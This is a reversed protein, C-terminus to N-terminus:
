WPKKYRWMKIEGINPIYIRRTVAGALLVKKGISSLVGGPKLISILSIPNVGIDRAIAILDFSGLKLKNMDKAIIVHSRDLSNKNIKIIPERKAIRVILPNTEVVYLKNPKFRLVNRAALGDGGGIILVRGPHRGLYGVAEDILTRNLINEGPYVFQTRGGVTLKLVSGDGSLVVDRKSYLIKM